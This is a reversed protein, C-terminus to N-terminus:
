EPSRRVPSIRSFSSHTSSIPVNRRLRMTLAGLRALNPLVQWPKRGHIDLDVLRIGEQRLVNGYYTETRGFLSWVSTDIGRERLGRALLVVQKEAGGMGLQGIM